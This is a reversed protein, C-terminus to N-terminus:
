ARGRHGWWGRCHGGRRWSRSSLAEAQPGLLQDRHPQELAGVLQELGAVRGIDGGLALGLVGAPDLPEGSSGPATRGAGASRRRRSVRRRRGGRARRRVAGATRGRSSGSLRATLLVAVRLPTSRRRAGAASWPRLRITCQSGHASPGLCVKSQRVRQDGGPGDVGVTPGHGAERSVGPVAITSRLWLPHPGLRRGGAMASPISCDPQALGVRTPLSWAGQPTTGTHVM